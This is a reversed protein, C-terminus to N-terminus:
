NNSPFFASSVIEIRSSDFGLVVCPYYTQIPLNRFAYGFNIKNIHFSIDLGKSTFELLIGISDNIKCQAGYETKELVGKENYGIKKSESPVFGWFGKPDSIAFYYDNRMLCLGVIISKEAPETKFIFETYHRGTKFGKDAMVLQHDDSGVKFAISSNMDLFINAGLNIESFYIPKQPLIMLTENNRIEEDAFSRFPNLERIKSKTTAFLRFQSNHNWKTEDSIQALDEAIALKASIDM